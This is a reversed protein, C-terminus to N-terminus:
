PTLVTNDILRAREFQVAIAVLAPRAVSQVPQLTDADVLQRLDEYTIPDVELGTKMLRNPGGSLGPSHTDSVFIVHVAAGERFTSTGAQKQLFQQLASLGAEVRIPTRSIQTHAVLCPVGQANEEWPEFWADECGAFRFTSGIEPAHKRFRAIGEADDARQVHWRQAEFRGQADETFTQDTSGDITIGNDDYLVILNGLGLHGAGVQVAM